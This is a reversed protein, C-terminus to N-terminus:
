RISLDKSVSNIHGLVAERVFFAVMRDQLYNLMNSLKNLLEGLCSGLALSDLIEQASGFLAGTVCLMVISMIIKLAYLFIVAWIELFRLCIKYGLITLLLCKRAYLEVQNYSSTPFSTILLNERKDILSDQLALSVVFSKRSVPIFFPLNSDTWVVRITDSTDFLSNSALYGIYHDIVPKMEANKPIAKGHFVTHLVLVDGMTNWFLLAILAVQFLISYFYFEAGWILLIPVGIILINITTLLLNKKM